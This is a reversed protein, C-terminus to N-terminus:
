IHTCLTLITLDPHVVFIIPSFSSLFGKSYAHCALSWAQDTGGLNADHILLLLLHGKSLLGKAYAPPTM